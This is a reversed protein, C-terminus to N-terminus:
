SHQTQKNSKRTKSRGFDINLIMFATIVGWGRFVRAFRARSRVNILLKKVKCIVNTTNRSSFQVKKFYFNIDAYSIVSNRRVAYWGKAYQTGDLFVRFVAYWFPTTVRMTLM